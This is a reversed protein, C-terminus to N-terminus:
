RLVAIGETASEDYFWKLKSIGDVDRVTMATKDVANVWNGPNGAPNPTDNIYADPPYLGGKYGIMGMGTYQMAAGEAGNAWAAMAAGSVGTWGNKLGVTSRSARGVFDASDEHEKNWLGKKELEACTAAYTASGFLKTEISREPPWALAGVMQLLNITQASPRAIFEDEPVCMGRDSWYDVHARNKVPNLFSRYSPIIYALAARNYGRVFAFTFCSTLKDADANSTGALLPRLKIVIADCMTELDRMYGERGKALNNVEAVIAITTAIVFGVIAAVAVAIAGGAAAGATIASLGASVSGGGIAGIVAVTSGIVGMATGLVAGVTPSHGMDKVGAPGGIRFGGGQSPNVQLAFGHEAATHLDTGFGPSRDGDPLADDAKKARLALYGVGGVGILTLPDM